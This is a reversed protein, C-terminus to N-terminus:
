AGRRRDGDLPEALREAVVQYEVADVEVDGGAGHEGQQPGVAGALGDGDVDQRGQEARVAALGEDGAVVQGALSVGDARGDPHGRLRRAMHSTMAPRTAFPTVIKRVV